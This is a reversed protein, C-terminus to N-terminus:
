EKTLKRALELHERLVPLTRAAFEKVQPNKAEKGARTFEAVAKEHDELMHGLYEKDFDAGKFDKFHDIHRQHEDNPRGPVTLGAEKAAKKLDENAKGHDEVMRQAFRKVEERKARTAALKGLEVEHLGGSAAWAVFAADDFPAVTPRRDEGSTAMTALLFFAAGFL